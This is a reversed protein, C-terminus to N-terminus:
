WLPAFLAMPVMSAMVLSAMNGTPSFDWEYRRRETMQNAPLFAVDSLLLDGHSKIM